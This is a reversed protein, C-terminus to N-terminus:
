HIYKEVVQILRERSFPKKMFDDAGTKEIEQSISFNASMLVIPIDQKISKVQAVINEAKEGPLYYDLIVMSPNNSKMKQIADKGKEFASVTYSEQELTSKLIDRIDEDDDVIYVKKVTDM